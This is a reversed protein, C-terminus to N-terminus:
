SFEESVFLLLLSVGPLEPDAISNKRQREQTQLIKTHWTEMMEQSEVRCKM